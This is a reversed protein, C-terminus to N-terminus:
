CVSAKPYKTSFFFFWRLFMISLKPFSVLLLCKKLWSVTFYWSHGNRFIGKWAKQTNTKSHNLWLTWTNERNSCPKFYIKYNHIRNLVVMKQLVEQKNPMQTAEVVKSRYFLSEIIFMKTRQAKETNHTIQQHHSNLIHQKPWHDHHTNQQM